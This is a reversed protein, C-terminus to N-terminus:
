FFLAPRNFEIDIGQCNRLEFRPPERCESGRGVMSNIGTIL